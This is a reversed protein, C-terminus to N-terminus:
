QHCLIWFIVNEDVQHIERRNYLIALDPGYYAPQIHMDIVLLDRFRM